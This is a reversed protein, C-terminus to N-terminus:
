GMDYACFRLFEKTIGPILQKSYVLKINENATPSTLSVLRTGKSPFDDTSGYDLPFDDIFSCLRKMM